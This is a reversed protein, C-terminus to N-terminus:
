TSIRKALALVGTIVAIAIALVLAFVAVWVITGAMVVVIAEQFDSFM